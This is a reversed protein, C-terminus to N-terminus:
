VFVELPCFLTKETRLALYLSNGRLYVPMLDVENLNLESAPKKRQFLIIPSIYFLCNM